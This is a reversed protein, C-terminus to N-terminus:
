KTENKNEDLSGSINERERKWRKHIEICLEYCEIDARSWIGKQIGKKLQDEFFKIDDDLKSM